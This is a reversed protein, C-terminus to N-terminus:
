LLGAAPLDDLETRGMMWSLRQPPPAALAAAPLPTMGMPKRARWLMELLRLELRVYDRPLDDFDYGLGLDVRHVEVERRRLFPLRARARTGSLMAATGEWDHEAAWREDLARATRAVDDVLAAWSRTAGAEIDANRGALGGPYQPRGDLMSLHGDANRAIHTLVHALSWGPLRSPTTPDPPDLAGLWEVLAAHSAVAAALDRELEAPDPLEASM